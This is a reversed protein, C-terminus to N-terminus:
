ESKVVNKIALFKKTANTRSGCFTVDIGDKFYMGDVYTGKTEYLGFLTEKSYEKNVNEILLKGKGTGTQYNRM